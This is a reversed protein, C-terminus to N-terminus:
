ARQAHRGEAVLQTLRGYAERCAAYDSRHCLEQGYWKMEVVRVLVELVPYTPTGRYRRLHERNTTGRRFRKKESQEFRVLSARMLLRVAEIWEGRREAEDAMHELEDADQGSLLVNPLFSANEHSSTGRLASFLTYVIHALLVVLLAVLGIVILWRLLEPLGETLEFLWRIPTLVLELLWLWWSLSHDASEVPNIQFDPRALVERIKGRIAEESSATDATTISTLKM